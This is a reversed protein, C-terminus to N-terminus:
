VEVLLSRADVEGKTAGIAGAPAIILGFRLNAGACGRVWLRQFSHNCVEAAPM